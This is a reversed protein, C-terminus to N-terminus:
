YKVHGKKEKIVEVLKRTMSEILGQYEQIEIKSWEVESRKLAKM